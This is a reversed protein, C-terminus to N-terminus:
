ALFLQGAIDLGYAQIAGLRLIDDRQRADQELLMVALNRVVAFGELRQGAHAALRGVHNQIDHEAFGGNGDTNAATVSM